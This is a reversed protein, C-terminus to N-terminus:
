DDTANLEKLIEERTYFGDHLLSDVQKGCEELTKGLAEQLDKLRRIKTWNSSNSDILKRFLIQAAIRCEVVRQNYLNNAAKNATVGLNSNNILKRKFIVQIYFPM